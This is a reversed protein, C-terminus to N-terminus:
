GNDVCSALRLERRRHGGFAQVSRAFAMTLHLSSRLTGQLFRVVGTREGVLSNSVLTGNEVKSHSIKEAWHCGKVKLPLRLLNADCRGVARSACEINRQGNFVLRRRKRIITARPADYAPANVLGYLDHCHMRPITIPEIGVFDRLLQAHHRSVQIGIAVLLRWGMCHGHWGRRRQFRILMVVGILDHLLGRQWCWLILM